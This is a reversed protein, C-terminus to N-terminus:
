EGAKRDLADLADALEDYGGTREVDTAVDAWEVVALIEPWCDLVLLQLAENQDHEPRQAWAQELFTKAM